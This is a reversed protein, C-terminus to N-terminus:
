KNAKSPLMSKNKEFLFSILVLQENHTVDSSWSRVNRQIFLAYLHFYKM